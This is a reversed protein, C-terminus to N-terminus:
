AILGALGDVIGSSRINVNVSPAQPQASLMPWLVFYALVLVLVLVILGVILAVSMGSGTSSQTNNGPNVNVQSM